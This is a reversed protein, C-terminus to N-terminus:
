VRANTATDPLAGASAAKDREPRSPCVLSDRVFTLLMAAGSKGMRDSIM